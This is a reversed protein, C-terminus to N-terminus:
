NSSGNGEGETKFGVSVAQDMAKTIKEVDGAKLTSVGIPVGAVAPVMLFLLQIGKMEEFWEQTLRMTDSITQFGMPDIDRDIFFVVADGDEPSLKQIDHIMEKDNM